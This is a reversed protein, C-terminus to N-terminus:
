EDLKINNIQAFNNEAEECIIWCCTTKNANGVCNNCIENHFNEILEIRKM